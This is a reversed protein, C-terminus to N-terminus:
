REAGFEYLFADTVVWRFFTYIRDCFDAAKGGITALDFDEQQSTYHDLDLVWSPERAPEIGPDYTAGAPLRGWRGRLQSDELQFLTDSLVHVVKASGLAAEDGVIGLMEPRILKSIRALLEGTVRDVYRVGIRDCVKPHLWDELAHLVVALRTLLDSRRTYRKASLAVFTPALTVQWADPDKTEFRWVTGADQPQVGGPGIVVGLQREPRLIPYDKRIAEQFNAVFSSDEIKMVVPFRVQAIVSVLPARNLPVEQVSPGFPTLTMTVKGNYEGGYRIPLWPVTVGSWFM